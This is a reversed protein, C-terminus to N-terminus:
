NNPIVCNILTSLCNTLAYKQNLLLVQNHSLKTWDPRILWFILLRTRFYECRLIKRLRQQMCHSWAFIMLMAPYANLVSSNGTSIGPFVSRARLLIVQITLHHPHSEAVPCTLTLFWKACHLSLALSSGLAFKAPACFPGPCVACVTWNKVGLMSSASSPLPSPPELQQCTSFHQADM